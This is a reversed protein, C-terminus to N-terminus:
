KSLFSRPNMLRALSGVAKEACGKTFQYKRDIFECFQRVMEPYAQIAPGTDIVCKDRFYRKWLFDMAEEATMTEPLDLPKRLMERYELDEDLKDIHEKVYRVARHLTSMMTQM